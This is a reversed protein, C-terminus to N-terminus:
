SGLPGLQSQIREERMKRILENTDIPLTESCDPKFVLIGNKLVLRGSSSAGDEPCGNETPNGTPPSSANRWTKLTELLASIIDDSSTEIAQILEEKPTMEARKFSM